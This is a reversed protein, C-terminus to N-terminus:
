GQKVEILEQDTLGIAGDVILTENGELGSKIVIEGNYSEGMTVYVKKAMAGDPGDAHVFVYNKGGVEQQVLELPVIVVDEQTYDNILVSALLNPKLEDKPNNLDIEIKFTRNAPNITKGILSVRADKKTDLAPFEVTVKEGKKVAKLYNEPVDAVVKVKATNLIQIIPTGPGALEGAKTIVMQVVGSIPAYVNTKEAQVKLTELSKELREKNNKAQLYQIESGINQDWLRKQREFVETTLELSTKLEAMQTNILESDLSAILQGKRVNNGEEVTLNLVRGGVDSSVNVIDDSQVSAQIDVYHQFDRRTIDETTVLARNPAVAPDLEEIEAEVQNVLKELERLETRKTKLFAKKGELDKPITSGTETPVCANVLFLIALLTIIRE